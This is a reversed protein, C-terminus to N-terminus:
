PLRLLRVVNTARGNPDYAARLEWGERRWVDSAPSPSAPQGIRSVIEERLMGETVANWSKPSTHTRATSCGALGVVALMFLILTYKM